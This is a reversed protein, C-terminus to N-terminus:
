RGSVGARLRAADLPDATFQTTFLPAIGSPRAMYPNVTYFDDPVAFVELRNPRLRNDPDVCLLEAERPIYLGGASVRYGESENPLSSHFLMTSFVFAQGARMPVDTICEGYIVDLLEDYPFVPESPRIANNLRHSGRVVRLCGNRLDVDVLPVWFQVATFRDDFVFSPDQHIKVLGDHPKKCLFGGLVFRYDDLLGREHMRYVSSIREAVEIRYQVNTSLVSPAFGMRYVPDPHAIWWDRLDRVEDDDLFDIVVYGDRDFAHQM